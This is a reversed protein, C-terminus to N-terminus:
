ERTEEFEAAPDAINDWANLGANRLAELAKKGDGLRPQSFDRITFSLLRWSRHLWVAAGTAAIDEYLHQGLRRVLARTKVDCYLVRQRGPIKMLCRMGTVGGVREVKGVVTTEGKLLLAKSIRKYDGEAITFLVGQHGNNLLGIEIRGHISKAVNSLTEIASLAAILVDSQTAADDTLVAAVQLLNQRAVDPSRAVCFYQASGPTVNLLGIAKEPPVHPMTFPDRASAMDQVAALADSVARLAVREPRIGEGVFRVVFTPQPTENPM